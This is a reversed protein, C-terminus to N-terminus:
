WFVFCCNSFCLGYSGYLFTKVCNLFSVVMEIDVSALFLIACSELSSM